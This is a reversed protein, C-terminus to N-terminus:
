EGSVARDNTLWRTEADNNRGARAQRLPRVARGRQGPDTPAHDQDLAGDNGGASGPSAWRFVDGQLEPGKGQLLLRIENVLAAVKHPTPM